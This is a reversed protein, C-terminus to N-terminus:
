KQPVTWLMGIDNLLRIRDANMREKQQMSKQYLQRQNVVWIGLKLGDDTEYRKSVRLNGNQEFYTKAATYYRMWQEDQASDWVMGISSLRQVQDDTLRGRVLRKRKSRQNSIWVGLRLGDETQYGRSVLLDGHERYYREAAAFYLDWRTEYTNWEM